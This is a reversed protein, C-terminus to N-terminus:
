RFFREPGAVQKICRVDSKDLVWLLFVAALMAVRWFYDHAFDFWQPTYTGVMFLHVLRLSNLGLLLFTQALFIRLRRWGSATSIGTLFALLTIAPLGTCLVSVEFAFGSPSRIILGSMEAPIGIANVAATCIMTTLQALLEGNLWILVVAASIYAM